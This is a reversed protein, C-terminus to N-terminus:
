NSSNSTQADLEDFKNLHSSNCMPNGSWFKKAFHIPHKHMQRWHKSATPQAAPHADPRYFVSHHPAPTTIQRSRPASKCIAMSIGTGSVTEQKLSIWIPKVKRTAAWRPLGLFLATLRPHTHTINTCTCTNGHQYISCTITINYILHTWTEACTTNKSTSDHGNQPTSRAFSEVNVWKIM